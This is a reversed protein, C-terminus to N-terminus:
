PLSRPKGPGFDLHGVELTGQDLTSGICGGVGLRRCAEGVPLDFGAPLVVDNERPRYRDMVRHMNRDWFEGVLGDMDFGPGSTLRRM